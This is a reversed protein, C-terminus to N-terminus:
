EILKGDIIEQTVSNSEYDNCWTNNCYAITYPSSQKKDSGSPIFLFHLGCHIMDPM